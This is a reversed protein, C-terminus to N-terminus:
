APHHSRPSQTRSLRRRSSGHRHEAASAARGQHGTNAAHQGKAAAPRCCAAHKAFRKGAAACERGCWREPRASAGSAGPPGRRVAPNISASPPVPLKGQQILTARQAVSPPLGPAAMGRRSSDCSARGQSWAPGGSDEPCSRRGGTASPQHRHRDDVQQPHQRLHHQQGAAARLPRRSCLGPGASSRCRCSTCDSRRRRHRWCSSIRRRRRCSSCRRRRRHHSDFVSRQFGAGPARYLRDRRRRRRCTM